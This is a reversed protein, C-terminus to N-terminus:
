KKLGIGQILFTKEYYQRTMQPFHEKGTKEVFNKKVSYM